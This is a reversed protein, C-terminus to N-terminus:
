LRAARILDAEVASRDERLQAADPRATWPTLTAVIPRATRLLVIATGFPLTRLVDPPIVPVRRVSQQWSKGGGRDTSTSSTTEDREGLLASIDALDRTHSGGGLIIKVIAADWIVTAAHENWRSRAQALSQLVPLTTIGSGGGESMLTPLSPLPSLNAIEDLALLLPPDLRAGPSAAAMHRATEVLDEVLAAVLAAGAGSGAGTALLYLTGRERLFAAPDFHEEPEPSVAALVRPDALSAFALSVGHWISDRTRPDAQIMADLAEAWGDAAGSASRLINVADAAASPSLTWQYLARTDRDDLAAAHLLSQIAVETKGQWFSGNEVSGFGTGAALGRARIMATLPDACGRVPSWRLGAPVGPALSQPDFVAVPGLRKRASLTAALNDPRTSTTLVAGPADLIFPIVIHHGKGSRPPGVLLMSDEVTAWVARGRATGIRYGVEAPAPQELSPRLTRARRALARTSAARAVEVGTAIGDIAHPDRLGKPRHFLRWAGWALGGAAALLVALATWYAVPHLGTAGLVTAPDAPRALIVLAEPISASPADAGTVWAALYGAVWLLLAFAFAGAIIGLTLNTLTDSGTYRPQPSTM